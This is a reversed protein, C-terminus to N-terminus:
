SGRRSQGRGWYKELENDAEFEPTAGAAFMKVTQNYIWHASSETTTDGM